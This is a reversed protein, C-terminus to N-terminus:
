ISKKTVFPTEGAQVLSGLHKTSDYHLVLDESIDVQM